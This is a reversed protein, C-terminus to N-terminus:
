LKLEVVRVPLEEAAYISYREMGHELTYNKRRKWSADDVVDWLRCVDKGENLRLGRGLSQLVRITSKTPHAFIIDEISPINIGTSTTGYSAVIIAGSLERLAMRVSERDNVAVSGDIFYVPKKGAKERISSELLRGHEIINFLLLTNGETNLAMEALLRNRTPHNLLFDIEEQYTAPVKVEKFQGKKEDWVVKVNKTALWHCEPAPYRFTVQTIESASLRGEDQLGKTTAVVFLPGFLGFLTLENVKKGDLSGTTGIKVSITTTKEMIGVLKTAAFEHAEDGFIVNFQTFWEAPNDKISQWTTFLVNKTFTKDFGSYLRQCNGESDWGNAWSYDQFDKYFQEVLSKRPVVVLVRSGQLLYRRTLAYIIYSKGSATPARLLCRSSDLAHHIADIQHPHAPIAEHKDNHVDLSRVFDEVDERSVAEPFDVSVDLDVEFGCEESFEVVDNLLGLYTTKKQRNFLSKKGDWLGARVKPQHKANPVEFTFNAHLREYFEPYFGNTDVRIFVENLKSIIVRRGSLDEM